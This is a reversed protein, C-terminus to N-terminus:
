GIWCKKLRRSTNELKIYLNNEVLRRVVEEVVKDHEEEKEIRIIVGDIFSVTVYWRVNM